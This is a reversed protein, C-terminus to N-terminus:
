PSMYLQRGEARWMSDMVEILQLVMTDQRLDDGAKFMIMVDDGQPDANEFTLWLPLKASSMVRCKEIKPKLVRVRPDFPLEFGETPLSSEISNLMRRLTNYYQKKGRGKEAYVAFAVKAFLGTEAWLM